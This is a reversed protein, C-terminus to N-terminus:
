STTLLSVRQYNLTAISFSMFHGYFYHIKGNIAHHIKGYNKTLKGSPVWLGYVAGELTSLCFELTQGPRLGLLRGIGGLGYMRAHTVKAAQWPILDSVAAM